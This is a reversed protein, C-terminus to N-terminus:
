KILTKIIKLKPIIKNNHFFQLSVAFLKWVLRPEGELSLSFLLLSTHTDRLTHSVQQSLDGQKGMTPYSSIGNAFIHGQGTVTKSQKM